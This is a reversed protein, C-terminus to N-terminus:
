KRGGFCRCMKRRRDQWHNQNCNQRSNRIQCPLNTSRKIQIVKIKMDQPCFNQHKRSRGAMLIVMQILINSHEPSPGTNLLCCPLHPFCLHGAGGDRMSCIPVSLGSPLLSVGRDGPSSPVATRTDVGAVGGNPPWRGQNCM